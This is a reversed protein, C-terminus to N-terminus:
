HFFHHPPHLPEAIASKPNEIESKIGRLKWDAIGGDKLVLDRDAPLPDSLGFDAMVMAKKPLANNTKPITM